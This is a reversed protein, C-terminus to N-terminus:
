ISQDKKNLDEFRLVVDAHQVVTDSHTVVLITRTKKLESLMGLMMQINDKDLNNTPEDLLILSYDFLM